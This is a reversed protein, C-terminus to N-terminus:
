IYFWSSWSVRLQDQEGAYELNQFITWSFRRRVEMRALYRRYWRQILIAAKMATIFSSLDDTFICLQNAHPLSACFEDDRILVHTHNELGVCHDMWQDTIFRIILKDPYEWHGDLEFGGYYRNASWILVPPNKIDDRTSSHKVM